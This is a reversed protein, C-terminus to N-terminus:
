KEGNPLVVVTGAKILMYLAQHAAYHAAYYAAKCERCSEWGDPSHVAFHESGVTAAEEIIERPIEFRPNQDPPGALDKLLNDRAQESLLIGPTM